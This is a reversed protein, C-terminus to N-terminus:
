RYDFFDRRPPHRSVPLNRTQDPPLFVRTQHPTHQRIRCEVPTIGAMPHHVRRAPQHRAPRFLGPQQTHFPHLQFVFIMDAQFPIKPITLCTPFVSIPPIFDAPRRFNTKLRCQKAKITRLLVYGARIELGM